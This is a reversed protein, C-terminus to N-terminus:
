RCAEHEGLTALLIELVSKFKRRLANLRRDSM